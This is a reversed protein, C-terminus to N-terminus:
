MQLLTPVTDLQQPVRYRVWRLSRVPTCTRLVTAGTRRPTNRNLLAGMPSIAGPTRDCRPHALISSRCSKITNGCGWRFTPVWRLSPVPTRYFVCRVYFCKFISRVGTGVKAHNRYGVYQYSGSRSGPVYISHGWRRLGECPSDSIYLMQMPSFFLFLPPHMRRTVCLVYGCGRQCM